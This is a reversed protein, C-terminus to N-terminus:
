EESQNFNRLAIGVDSMDVKNDCNVDANANWKPDGTKSAYARLVIGVDTMDVIRDGNVDGPICIKVWSVAMNDKTDIEGELASVYVTITYNSIELGATNWQFSVCTSKRSELTVGTKTAITMSNCCITINFSAAQEGYNILWIMLVLNYNYGKPVITRSCNFKKIGIDSQGGYPKILPNYDVIGWKRYPTDGLGNGAPFPYMDGGTYDDWYNGPYPSYTRNWANTSADTAVHNKNKIFSNYYIENNTSEFILVGLGFIGSMNAIINQILKNYRSKYLDIGLEGMSVKNEVIHNFHSAWLSVCEMNHSIENRFITSHNSNQLRIGYSDNNSILNYSITCNCTEGVHLGISNNFLFSSIVNCKLSNRLEIGHHNYIAHVNRITSNTVYALLIGQINHKITFNEVLINTSNVIALYGVDPYINPNFNVNAQNIIYYLQKGDVTNSADIDHLYHQINSGFVGFNYTNNVISNGRFVCNSSSDLYIGKHESKVYNNKFTANRSKSVLVGTGGSRITFNSIVTDNAKVHLTVGWGGGDIITNEKNEGTLSINNKPIVVHEYYVGSRVFIVDGSSAADIAWQITPYRIGTKLNYVPPSYPNVLPYNDQNDENIIYPTDWKGSGNLEKADPYRETYDSWYNGGVILGDDWINVSYFIITQNVNDVFNNNFIKNNSSQHLRIGSKNNTLNNGLIHTSSSYYLAIGDLTSNFVVNGFVTCNKSGYVQIGVDSATVNNGVASIKSSSEVMLAITNNYAINSLIDCYSSNYIRIGFRNNSLINNWVSCNHVSILAVGSDIYGMGCNQIKFDKILVNDAMVYLVTGEGDGDIITNEKNEGTLSINNKPIVVHEYYVGSRVFIVDGSSAADIADQIKEYDDPVIITRSETFASV